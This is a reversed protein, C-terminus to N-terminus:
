YNAIALTLNKRAMKEFKQYFYDHHYIRQKALFSELVQKRKKYYIFSPILKYEKRVNQEFQQYVKESSGLITLDIDTILQEDNDQLNANHCTAMILQYVKDILANNAQNEQLFQSALEASKLENKASFVDYIVDHFWLALEVGNVNDALNQCNQLHQLCVSIHSQNHYHRHKEHYYSQLLQYYALNNAFGLRAMLDLWQLKDM